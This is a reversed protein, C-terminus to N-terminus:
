APGPQVSRTPTDLRPTPDRDNAGARDPRRSGEPRETTRILAPYRLSQVELLRAREDETHGGWVGYSERVRLAHDLCETIVPCSRCIAKARDARDSRATDRENPPHFFLTSDMGRCAADRQWEWHHLQAGPLRTIDAM